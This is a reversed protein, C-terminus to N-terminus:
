DAGGVRGAADDAVAVPDGRAAHGGADVEGEGDDGLEGAGLDRLGDLEADLVVGCGGEVGAGGGLGRGRGEGQHAGAVGGGVGGEAGGEVGERVGRAVTSIRNVSPGRISRNWRSSGGARGRAGGPCESRSGGATGGRGTSRM